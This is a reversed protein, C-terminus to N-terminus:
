FPEDGNEAPPESVIIIKRRHKPDKPDLEIKIKGDAELKRIASEAEARAWGLATDLINHAWDPAGAGKGQGRNISCGGSSIHRWLARWGADVSAGARAPTAVPRLVAVSKSGVVGPTRPDEATLSLVEREFYYIGPIMGDRQRQGMLRVTKRSTAEDLGLEAGQERTLGVLTSMEALAAFIASSGRYAQIDEKSGAKGQHQMVDVALFGASAIANVMGMAKDMIDDNGDIGDFLTVLTDMGIFVVPQGAEAREALTTVFRVADQTPTVRRDRSGRGLVLKGTDTPWVDMNHKFDPASLGFARMQGKWRAALVDRSEENSVILVDGCWDIPNRQGILDGRECAIAMAEDGLYTSKGANAASAVSSVYGRTLRDTIAPRLAVPGNHAPDFRGTGDTLTNVGSSSFAPRPSAARLRALAAEWDDLAKLDEPSAGSSGTNRADFPVGVRVGLWEAADRADGMPAWEMVVDIPTRGGERADGLDHVGWDKIGDPSLSLDEQLPRGLDSSKVRYGGADTKTAAPFLEPVWADLDNMAAQNIQGMPSDRYAKRAAVEEFSGPAHQQPQGASAEDVARSAKEAAKAKTAHEMMAELAKPARGLEWPTGAIHDGSFTLYRRISYLEVGGGKVPSRLTIDSLAWFRVGAGSPSIEFYTERLDIIAQAWPEIVGTVPDRCGDLDGGILGCGETLVFGIGSLRHKEVAEVAQEYGVHNEPKQWALSTGPGVIIPTKKPKPKFNGQADYDPDARWCIWNRKSALASPVSFPENFPNLKYAQAM